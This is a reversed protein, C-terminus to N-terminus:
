HINPNPLYYQKHTHAIRIVHQLVTKNSLSVYESLFNIVRSNNQFDTNYYM